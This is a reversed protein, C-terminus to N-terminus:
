TLGLVGQARRPYEKRGVQYDRSNVRPPLFKGGLAGKGSGARWGKVMILWRHGKLGRTKVEWKSM